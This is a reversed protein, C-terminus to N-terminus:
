REARDEAILREVDSQEIGLKRARSRGFEQPERRRREAVDRRLADRPLESKKKM